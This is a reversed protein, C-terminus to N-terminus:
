NWMILKDYNAAWWKVVMSLHSESAWLARKASSAHLVWKRSQPRTNPSIWQSNTWKYQSYLLNSLHSKCNLNLHSHYTMSGGKFWALKCVAVLSRFKVEQALLSGRRNIWCRSWLRQFICRHCIGDWVQQSRYSLTPPNNWFLPSSLKSGRTLKGWSAQISSWENQNRVWSSKSKCYDKNRLKCLKTGSKWSRGSCKVRSVYTM